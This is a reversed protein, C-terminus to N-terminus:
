LLPTLPRKLYNKYNKNMKNMNVKYVPNSLVHEINQKLEKSTVKDKNGRIGLKHYTVRAANGNQDFNKGSYVLMPVAYHVCENISNVGGHNISCDAKSLVLLQPVWSFLFVNPSTTQLDNLDINGGASLILVWDKQNSVAEIVKKLFSVDGKLYSSVSCYIIKKDAFRDLIKKIELDSTATTIKERNQYVMPGVYTINEPVKQPFDMESMCLTLIPLKTFSFHPPLTNTLLGSRPFGVEKAYKRLVARRYNSFKIKNVSLRGYVMLRMKIWNIAIGIASGSWGYGPIITSRISPLSFSIKDSFWTHFLVVPIKLATAAFVFDHLEVDVLVRDPEIKCLIEEYIDLHMIKKGKQYHSRFNKFFYSAKQTWTSLNELESTSFSFNIPPIEYYSFGQTEIIKGIEASSLYIVIHGESELKSVLAFTAHLRGKLYPAVVVIKM